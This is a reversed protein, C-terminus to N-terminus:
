ASIITTLLLFRWMSVKGVGEQQTKGNEVQNKLGTVRGKERHLVPDETTKPEWRQKLSEVKGRLSELMVPPPIEDQRTALEKDMQFPLDNSVGTSKVASLFSQIKQDSPVAEDSSTATLEASTQLIGL